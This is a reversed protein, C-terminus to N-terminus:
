TLRSLARLLPSRGGHMRRLDRSALTQLYPNAPFQPTLWRPTSPPPKKISGIEGAGTSSEVGNESRSYPALAFRGVSNSRKERGCLRVTGRPPSFSILSAQLLPLATITKVFHSAM